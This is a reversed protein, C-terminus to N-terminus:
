PDVMHELGDNCVLCRFSRSISGLCEPRIGSRTKWLSDVEKVHIQGLGNSGEIM